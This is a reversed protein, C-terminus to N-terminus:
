KVSGALLGEVFYRQFAFFLALPLLMSVFSAPAILDINSGFQRFQSDAGLWSVGDFPEEFTARRTSTSIRSPAPATRISRASEASHSLPWRAM